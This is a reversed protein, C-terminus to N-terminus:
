MDIGINVAETNVNWDEFTEYKGKITREMQEYIKAHLIVWKLLNLM